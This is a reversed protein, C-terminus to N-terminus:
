SWAPHVFIWETEDDAISEPVGGAADVMWLGADRSSEFAIRTGDPSWTPDADGGAPPGGGPEEAVLPEVQSGDANMVFLHDVADGGAARRAFAIRSGDPSWAPDADDGPDSTLSTAAGGAADIRYLDRGTEGTQRTFLITEGDPSWAPDSESLDDDTLQTEAGTQTDFLFVDDTGGRNAVYVLRTGDPSWDARADESLTVPEDDVTVLREGGDWAAVALLNRGAQQTTFAVYRRDPSVAPLNNWSAAGGVPLERLRTAGDVPTSLDLAWLSRVGDSRLRTFVITEPPIPEGATPLVDTGAAPVTTAPPATSAVSSSSSSQDEGDDGSLALVLGAAAGAVAV